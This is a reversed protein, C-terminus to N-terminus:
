PCVKDLRIPLDGESVVEYRVARSAGDYSFCVQQRDNAAAVGQMWKLCHDGFRLALQPNWGAGSSASIRPLDAVGVVDIKQVVGQVLSPCLFTYM